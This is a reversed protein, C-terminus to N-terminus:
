LSYGESSIHGGAGRNVWCESGIDLQGCKNLLSKLQALCFVPGLYTTPPVECLQDGADCGRCVPVGHVIILDFTGKAYPLRHSLSVVVPGARKIRSLGGEGDSACVFNPTLIVPLNHQIAGWERPTGEGGFAITLKACGSECM